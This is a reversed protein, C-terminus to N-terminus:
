RQATTLSGQAAKVAALEAQYAASSVAAPAPVAIQTPGTLTIMQWKGADPDNGAAVLPLAAAGALLAAMFPRSIDRLTRM